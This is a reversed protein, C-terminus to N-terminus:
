DNKLVYVNDREFVTLAKDVEDLKRALAMNQKKARDTYLSVSMNEIQSRLLHQERELNDRMNQIEHQQLRVTGQPRKNLEIQKVTERYEAAAEAKRNVLYNPLVGRKSQKKNEADEQLQKNISEQKKVDKQMTHLMKM